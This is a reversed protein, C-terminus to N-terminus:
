PRSEFIVLEVVAPDLTDVIMIDLVQGGTLDLALPASIPETEGALTVILDRSELFAFSFNSSSGPQLNFFRPLIAEEPTTGSPVDFVDVADINISFNSIRFQPETAVPRANDVLTQTFWADTEGFFVVTRLTDEVSQITDELLITGPDGVPTITLPADLNTMDVYPTLEGFEVDAFAAASFDNNVYGDFAATGFSAHLMRAKPLSNVDGVSVTSGDRAIINVGVAATIASDPDFLAVTIRVAPDTAIPASQLLVTAPDGPATLVLVYDDQDFEGYPLREGYSLTGVQNGPEPATGEPAYYVDLQGTQPSLHVFDAEFVTETGDWEREPVEWMLVSPEDLSGVLALSYEIDTEVEVLQTVLRDPQDAGQRFLDFSFNYSLDDWENFGVTARFNVGGEAQEEIVFFLQPSDVITNIGRVWGKGGSAQDFKSESCGAGFVLFGIMALAPVRWRKREIM